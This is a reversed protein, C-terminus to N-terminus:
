ENNLIVSWKNIPSNYLDKMNEGVFIQPSSNSFKMKNEHATIRILAAAFFDHLSLNKDIEEDLLYQTFVTNKSTPGCGFSSKDSAAATIIIRNPAALLPIFSGSYCASIVLLMPARNLGDIDTLIKQLYEGTIEGQIRNSGIRTHLQNKRGHSSFNIVTLLSQKSNKDIKNAKISSSEFEKIYTQIAKAATPITNFDARPYIQTTASNNSLLLSPGTAIKAFLLEEVRKIDGEFAPSAGDLAVGLYIGKVFSPNQSAENLSAQKPIEKFAHTSLQSIQKALLENNNKNEEPTQIPSICGTLTGLVISCLIFSLKKM